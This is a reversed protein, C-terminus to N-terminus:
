ARACVCGYARACVCLRVCVRPMSVSVREVPVEHEDLDADVPHVARKVCVLEEVLVDVRRM